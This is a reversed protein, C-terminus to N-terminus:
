GISECLMRKLENRWSDDAIEEDTYRNLFEYEYLPTVREVSYTGGSELQGSETLIRLADQAEQKTNYAVIEPYYDGYQRMEHQPTTDVDFSERLGYDSTFVIKWYGKNYYDYVRVFHLFFPEVALNNVDVKAQDYALRMIQSPKAFKPNLFDDDLKEM